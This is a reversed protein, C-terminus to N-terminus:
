NPGSDGRVPFLQHVGASDGAHFIAPFILSLDVDSVPEHVRRWLHLRELSGPERDDLLRQHGPLSAFRSIRVRRLVDGAAAARNAGAISKDWHRHLRLDARCIGPRIAWDPAGPNGARLASVGDVATAASYPRLRGGEGDARVSR